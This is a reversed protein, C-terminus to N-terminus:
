RLLGAHGAVAYGILEAIEPVIANGLAKIRHIRDPLGDVVRRVDPEVAFWGPRSGDGPRNAPRSTAWTELLGELREGFTDSMEPDVDRSRGRREGPPEGQRLGSREPEGEAYAIIWVRDRRHPAGISAAPLCHWEACYGLAALDGLVRGFWRGRDGALLSTVNELIAVAPRVEGILRALESWLGSQDGEIGAQNGALSIDTCPFGGSIVDVPGRIIEHDLEEDYLIWDDPEESDDRTYRLTRIDDHIYVDPWHKALVRRPFDEIECFAVTEFFGTAELGLSFGGIGAFTDLLRLKM